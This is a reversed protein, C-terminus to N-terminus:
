VVFGNIYIYKPDTDGPFTIIVNIHGSGKEISKFFFLLLLQVKGLLFFQALPRFSLCVSM